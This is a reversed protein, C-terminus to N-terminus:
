FMFDCGFLFLDILFLWVLDQFLLLDVRGFWLGCMLHRSLIGNLCNMLINLIKFDFNFFLILLQLIWLVSMLGLFPFMFIM